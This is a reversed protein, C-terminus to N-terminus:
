LQEQTFGNNELLTVLIEDLTGGDLNGLEGNLLVRIGKLIDLWGDGLVGDTGIKSLFRKEYSDAYIALGEILGRFEAQDGDRWAEFHRAGWANGQFDKRRVKANIKQVLELNTM